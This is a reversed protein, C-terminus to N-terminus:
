LWFANCYAFSKENVPNEMFVCNEIHKQHNNLYIWLIERITVKRESLVLLSGSVLNETESNQWWVVRGLSRIWLNFCKQINSRIRSSFLFITACHHWHCRLAYWLPTLSEGTCIEAHCHCRLAYWLQTLSEGTCTEAHFFVLETSYQIKAFSIFYQKYATIHCM